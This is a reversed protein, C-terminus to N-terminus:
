HAFFTLFLVHWFETISHVYSAILCGKAKEPFGPASENSRLAADAGNRGEARASEWGTPALLSLELEKYNLWM